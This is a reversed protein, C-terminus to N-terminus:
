HFVAACVSISKSFADDQRGLVVRASLDNRLCIQKHGPHPTADWNDPKFTVPTGTNNQVYAHDKRNWASSAKAVKFRGCERTPTVGIAFPANVTIATSTKCGRDYIYQSMKISDVNRYAAHGGNCQGRVIMKLQPNKLKVQDIWVDKRNGHPQKLWWRYQMQGTVSLSVCRGLPASWASFGGSYTRTSWHKATDAANAETNVGVVMTLALPVVALLRKKVKM